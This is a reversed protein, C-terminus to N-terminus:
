DTEQECLEEMTCDPLLFFDPSERVTSPLAGLVASPGVCRKAKLVLHYSM